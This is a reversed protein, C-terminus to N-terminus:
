WQNSTSSIFHILKISFYLENLLNKGTFILSYILIDSEISIQNEYTKYKENRNNMYDIVSM